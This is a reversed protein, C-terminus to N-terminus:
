LDSERVVCVAVVVDYNKTFTHSGHMTYHNGSRERARTVASMMKNSLEQKTRRIRDPSASYAPIFEARCMSGSEPLAAITSVWSDPNIAM